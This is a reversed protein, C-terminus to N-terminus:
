ASCGACQGTSTPGCAVVVPINPNAKAMAQRVREAPVDAGFVTPVITTGCLALASQALTGVYEVYWVSGSIYLRIM